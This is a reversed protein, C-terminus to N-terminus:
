TLCFLMALDTQQHKGASSTKLKVSIIRLTSKVETETVKSPTLNNSQLEVWYNQTPMNTDMYLPLKILMQLSTANQYHKVNKHM